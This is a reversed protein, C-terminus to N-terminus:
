AAKRTKILRVLHASLLKIILAVAMVALIVAVCKKQVERFCERTHADSPDLSIAVRLVRWARFYQGKGKYAFGSWSWPEARHPWLQQAQRATALLDDYHRLQDQASVLGHWYEVDTPNLDIAKREYVLSEDARHLQLLAFALMDFVQDRKPNLQAARHLPKLAEEYRRV